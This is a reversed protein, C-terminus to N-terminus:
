RRASEIAERIERSTKGTMVEMHRTYPNFVMVRSKPDQSLADLEENTIRVSIREQHKPTRYGLDTVVQKVEVVSGPKGYYLSLMHWIYGGEWVQFGFSGNPLPLDLPTNVLCLTYGRTGDPFAKVIDDLHTRFLGHAEKYQDDYTHITYINASVVTILAMGTVFGVGVDGYSPLIRTALARAGYRLVVALFIVSFASPLYLYRNTIGHISLLPLVAILALAATNLALRRHDKAKWIFIIFGLYFIGSADKGPCVNSISIFLARYMQKYMYHFGHERAAKQWINISDGTGPLYHAKLSFYTVGVVVLCLVLKWQIRPQSHPRYLQSLAIILPFAVLGSDKFLLAAFIGASSVVLFRTKNTDQFHLFAAVAVLCFLSYAPEYFVGGSFLPGCHPYFAAFMLGAALAVVYDKSLKRAIFYVLLANLTHLTLDFIHYPLPNLGFAGYLVHYTYTTLPRWFFTQSLFFESDTQSESITYLGAGDFFM